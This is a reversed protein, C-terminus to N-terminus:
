YGIHMFLEHLQIDVVIVVVIKFFPVFVLIIGKWLLYLVHDVLVHYHEVGSTMVSTM